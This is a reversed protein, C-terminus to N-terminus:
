FRYQLKINAAHRNVVAESCLADFMDHWDVGLNWRKGFQKNVSLCGYVPTGYVERIPSNNTYFVLQMGVQWDHSLYATPAFRLTAFARNKAIYFNPGGALTLGKTKWYASAGLETYNEEGEVVYFSAEAQM